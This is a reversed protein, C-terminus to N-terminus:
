LTLMHKVKISIELQKGFTSYFNIKGAVIFTTLNGTGLKKMLLVTLREFNLSNLVIMYGQHVSKETMILYGDM